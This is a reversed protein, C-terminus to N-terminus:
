TEADAEEKEFALEADDMDVEAVPEYVEHESMGYGQLTQEVTLEVCDAPVHLKEAIIKEIEDKTLTLKVKM